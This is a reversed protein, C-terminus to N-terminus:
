TIFGLRQVGSVGFDVLVPATFKKQEGVLAETLDKLSTYIISVLPTKSILKEFWFVVPRTFARTLIYGAFTIAIFGTIIGLGPLNYNFWRFFFYNLSDNIWGITIGVLYITAGVPLVILMGRFFFNLITKM